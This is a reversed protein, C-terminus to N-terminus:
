KTNTLSSVPIIYAKEPERYFSWREKWLGWKPQPMQILGLQNLREVNWPGLLYTDGPLLTTETALEMPFPAAFPWYIFGKPIRYDFVYRATSEDLLIPHDPTSKLALAEARNPSPASNINGSLIGGINVFTRLNGLLLAALVLLPIATKTVGAAPREWATAALVFVALFIYWMTGDGLGGVLAVLPVTGVMGVGIRKLPRWSARFSLLLLWLLLPFVPWQTVGVYRTFLLALLRLKDGALVQSHFRFTSWFELLHFNLMACFVLFAALMGPLALLIARKLCQHGALLMLAAAFFTTRPATSMGLFMLFFGLFVPIRRKGCSEVLFLGAMTLGVALPEPRLGFPLFAGSVGLPVLWEIWRPANHRRLWGITAVATVFYILIPFGTMAAANIGFIKLWGALAYAHVPPYMFFFHGPFHQRILLPNALEGGSALNLAAGAFFLDDNMPKPFDWIWLLWFFVLAAVVPWPFAFAAWRRNSSEAEVGPTEPPPKNDLERVRKIM